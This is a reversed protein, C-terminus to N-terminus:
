ILRRRRVVIIVFSRVEADASSGKSHKSPALSSETASMSAACAALLIQQSKPEVFRLALAKRLRSRNFSARSIEMMIPVLQDLSPQDAVAFRHLIAIVNDEDVGAILRIARCLLPVSCKPALVSLTPVESDGQKVIPPVIRMELLQSVIVQEPGDVAALVINLLSSLFDGDLLELPIQMLCINDAFCITCSLISQSVLARDKKQSASYGRALLWHAFCDQMEKAKRGKGLAKMQDLLQAEPFNSSHSGTSRNSAKTTEEGLLSLAARINSSKPADVQALYLTSKGQAKESACIFVRDAALKVIDTTFDAAANSSPTALPVSISAAVELGLVCDFLKVTTHGARDTQAAVAYADNVASLAANQEIRCSAPLPSHQWSAVLLESDDFDVEARSLDSPAASPTYVADAFKM